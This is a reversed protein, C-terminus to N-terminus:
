RSKYGSDCAVIQFDPNKGSYDKRNKKQQSDPQATFSLSRGRMNSKTM